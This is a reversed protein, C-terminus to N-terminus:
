LTLEFSSPRPFLYSLFNKLKTATEPRSFVDNVAFFKPRFNVAHDFEKQLDKDNDVIRYLVMDKEYKKDNIKNLVEPRCLTVTAVPGDQDYRVGAEDASNTIGPGAEATV